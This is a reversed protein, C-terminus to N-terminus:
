PTTLYSLTNKILPQPVAQWLNSDGCFVIRGQGFPLIGLAAPGVPEDPDKVNNDNLDLYDETSLWGLIQAEAPQATLGSGGLYDLPHVGATLPHQAFKALRTTTNHPGPGPIRAISQFHLGFHEALADQPHHEVLLLLRGGTTVWHDYADVEAPLYPGFGTDRIVLDAGALLAATIRTDRPLETVRYGLSRLHDALAKGQHPAGASFDSKQPFWWGGGDHSADVLVHRPKDSAAPRGSNATCAALLTLGLALTLQRFPRMM